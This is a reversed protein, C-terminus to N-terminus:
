NPRLVMVPDGNVDFFRLQNGMTDFNSSHDFAILLLLEYAGAEDLCLKKTTMVQGFEVLEDATRVRGSIDNCGMSATLRGNARVRVFTADRLAPPVPVLSGDFTRVRHVRWNGSLALREAEPDLEPLPEAAANEAPRSSFTERSGVADSVAALRGDPGLRVYRGNQVSRIAFKVASLRVIEFTEWGRIHPSVASLYTEAGVGARVFRGDAARFAIRNGDLTIRDLVLARQRLPVGKLIGGPADAGIFDRTHSSVLVVEEAAAPLSAGASVLVLSLAFLINRYM